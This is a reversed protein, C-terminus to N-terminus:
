FVAERKEKKDRKILISLIRVWPLLTAEEYVGDTKISPVWTKFTSFWTTYVMYVECPVQCCLPIRLPRAIKLAYKAM